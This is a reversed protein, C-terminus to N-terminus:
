HHSTRKSKEHEKMQAWSTSFGSNGKLSPIFQIKGTKQHTYKQVSSLLRLIIVDNDVVDNVTHMKKRNLSVSENDIATCFKTTIPLPTTPTFSRPLCGGTMSRKGKLRPRTDHRLCLMCHGDTMACYMQTSAPAVLGWCIWQLTRTSTWPAGGPLEM